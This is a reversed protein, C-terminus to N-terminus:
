PSAYFLGGMTFYVGGKSDATLDNLVGGLCDLPDGQYSNALIKREPALQMISPNLVRSAVFLSGRSNMTLAGGTNTDTFLITARGNNDVKIVTSNDNQAVLVSGDDAGVIGDAVNGSASWITKWKQGAAIVGPIEMVSYERPGQQAPPAAPAAQGQA